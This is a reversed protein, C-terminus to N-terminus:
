KFVGKIRLQRILDEIEEPGVGHERGMVHALEHGLTAIKSYDQDDVGPTDQSNTNISINGTRPNSIGLLSLSQVDQPKWRTNYLKNSADVYRMMDTTPGIKVSHVLGQIDPAYKRIQNFDPALSPDVLPEPQFQPPRPTHMRIAKIGLAKDYPDQEPSPVDLEEYNPLEMKQKPTASLLDSLRNLLVQKGSDSPGIPM